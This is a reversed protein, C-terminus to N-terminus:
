DLVPSEIKEVQVYNLEM